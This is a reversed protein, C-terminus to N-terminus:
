RRPANFPPAVTSSTRATRSTVTIIQSADPMFLSASSAAPPHPHLDSTALTHASNKAIQAHLQLPPWGALLSSEKSPECPAQSRATCITTQLDLHMVGLPPLSLEHASTKLPGARRPPRHVACVFM